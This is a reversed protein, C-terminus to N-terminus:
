TPMLAFSLGTEHMVNGFSLGFPISISSAGLLNEAAGLVRGTGHIVLQSLVRGLSIRAIRFYVVLM